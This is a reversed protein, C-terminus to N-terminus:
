RSNKLTYRIHPLRSSEQIRVLANSYTHVHAHHTPITDHNYEYLYMYMHMIFPYKCVIHNRYGISYIFRATSQGRITKCKEHVIRLINFLPSPVRADAM